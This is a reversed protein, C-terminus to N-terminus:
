PRKCRQDLNPSGLQFPHHTIARILEHNVCPRVCVSVSAPLSLVRLGSSAEPLFQDARHSIYDRPMTLEHKVLDCAAVDRLIKGCIWRAQHFLSLSLFLCIFLIKSHLRLPFQVFSDPQKWRHVMCVKRMIRGDELIKTFSWAKQCAPARVLGLM